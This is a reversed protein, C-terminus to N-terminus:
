GLKRLAELLEADTEEGPWTGFFTSVGTTDSPSPEIVVRQARAVPAREFIRDEARAVELTEVDVMLLRGSPGYRAIGSVVVEKGLLSRLAELEHQEMRGPVRTGDKLALVVDSRSASVTDLTGAIRAAQPRPTEDRLLEIREADTSKIVLPSSRGHLGELAIGAYGAGAVRAFRACSELLARDAVIDDRDGELITALLRGFIDFATLEGLDDPETGFRIEDTSSLTHAEIEFVASGESVDTVDFDCATELWAPCLGKRVSEGEVAFHTAMRAGELLAGTAEHLVVMSIRLEDAAGGLLTLRHKNM